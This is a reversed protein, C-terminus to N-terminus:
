ATRTLRRDHDSTLPQPFAYGPSPVRSPPPCSESIVCTNYDPAHVPGYLEMRVALIPRVSQRVLILFHENSRYADQGAQARRESSREDIVDPCGAVRIHLLQARRGAAPRGHPHQKREVRLAARNEENATVLGGIPLAPILAIHGYCIRAVVPMEGAQPEM